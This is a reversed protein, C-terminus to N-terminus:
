HAEKELWHGICEATGPYSPRMMSGYNVVVGERNIIYYYPFSNVNLQNYMKYAEYTENEDKWDNTNIHEIGSVRMEYKTLVEEYRERNSNKCITIFVVDDTSYKKRFEKLPEMEILCPPCWPAWFKIYIMKGRHKNLLDYFPKMHQMFNQAKAQDQYRGYLIYDSVPKPNEQFNKKSQHLQLISNRLYPSQIYQDFKEKQTDFYTTDNLHYLSSSLGRAYLYPMAPTEQMPALVDELTTTHDNARLRKNTMHLYRYMEETLQFHAETIVQSELLTAAEKLQSAYAHINIGEMRYNRINGLEDFLAKYYDAKLMEGIYQKVTETPQHKQVFENYRSWREEHEQQMLRDFEAQTQFEGWINYDKRYYWGETFLTIQKNLEAGSGTIVPNLMDKFDIELHISDGPQVYLHEIYPKINVECMQAHLRFNFYFTSDEAISSTYATQGERFFPLKLVLEETQPYFDRNKITGTIIVEGEPTVPAPPQNTQCGSLILIALMLVSLAKM